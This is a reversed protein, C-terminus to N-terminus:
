QDQFRIFYFESGEESNNEIEHKVGSPFIFRDGVKYEEINGDRAPKGGLKCVCALFVIIMYTMYVTDFTIGIFM